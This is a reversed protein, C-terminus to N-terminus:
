RKEVLLIHMAGYALIVFVVAFVGLSTIDKWLSSNNFGFSSLIAAGPVTIDLGYKRDVLVLFRVENVILSEFAYHFISLYQLWVASAPIKDHNLLLGAFLLSFLMVLSGILNAVGSDKCVIGIFLCIGSAALNFLVLVLIFVFFHQVDPVLGTMPYIISGMLIPPLIRLPIIDFLVKSAFYTIPSYYGNARERVFLLREGSFTSLSTLTSFGFLALVFFFLGLRNQFGPIDVTLGYFLFGSLVGLLISIAYHTLMLMPNRYLNKWTRQSLIVFQRLLGVRAYGRGVVSLHTKTRGSSNGNAQPSSSGTGNGNGNEAVDANLGNAALADAIALHMEDHTSSAIDSQAFSKVLGDLDSGGFSGPLPDDPDDVIQPPVIHPPQLRLKFGDVADDGAESSAVTDVTNKRRTFLEREQRLRVSDRHKGKHRVASSTAEVNALSANVSEDAGLSIASGSAISKVARTSSPRETATDSVTVTVIPGGVVDDDSFPEPNIAHMTLDVLYDSINFGPPCSYGIDDFYDQCQTFPGSYVTRGQALLMLRDFLATINSRPQHITFIVTRKYNKALTVLCEIVNYANYADLGSTPEDLFLISPSTVLECAIGVRRKEGGSIGRGRGEESGILSDRIHYIGLQKEVEFVRQEKASRGMDRPLRLLASNLITEHVTLTPLMTDEQDVFGVVQKFDSDDVKEGNVYFDGSVDGRKNKRALIDLFTTKGAGSAGMIAMVEGPRALGSIDDLILKGNLVYSVHEFYLSAPRHDTMLKISEDDSDDLNIPGYKFQRHSMYWTLLIAAVLFLSSAAIVAAILPTNIKPVPKKYGPVETNYLCEGSRCTLYINPDGFISSILENMHPEEFSCDNSGRAKQACEFSAPGKIEEKLYDTLDVSGDKGCLMRDQVCSCDITKCRYQTNNSSDDFQADSDCDTLHCFFSEAQDVWFQFDCESSNRDCTFTVQPIKGDLMGLIHRNTVDCMQYNNKIVDGKQYCVGGEKTEMLANCALDETCVNCNIGTWGEDCECTSGEDRMPRDYGGALSGCLPKLCDTGAWGPPCVCTGDYSNCEAYQGCTSSPTLCNFCPPCDKPFGSMLTIQAQMADLSTFNSSAAVVGAMSAAFVGVALASFRGSAM